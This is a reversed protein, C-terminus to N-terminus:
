LDLGIVEGDPDLGQLKVAKFTIRYDCNSHDPCCCKGFELGDLRVFLLDMMTYKSINNVTRTEEIELIRDVSKGEVIEHVLGYGRYVIRIKQPVIAAIGSLAM